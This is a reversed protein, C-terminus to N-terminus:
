GQIIGESSWDSSWINWFDSETPWVDVGWSSIPPYGGNEVDRERIRLRLKDGCTVGFLIFFNHQQLRWWSSRSSEM